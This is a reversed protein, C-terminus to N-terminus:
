MGKLDTRRRILADSMQSISADTNKLFYDEILNVSEKLTSLTDNLTTMFKYDRFIFYVICAVGIGNNVFISVIEDLGM